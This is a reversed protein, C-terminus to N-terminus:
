EGGGLHKRLVKDIEYDLPGAMLLGQPLLAEGIEHRIDRCRESPSKDLRDLHALCNEIKQFPCNGFIDWGGDKVHFTLIAINGGPLIYGQVILPDSYYAEEPDIKAGWAVRAGMALLKDIVPQIRQRAAPTIEHKDKKPM